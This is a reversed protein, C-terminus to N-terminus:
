RQQFTARLMARMTPRQGYLLVGAAYIRAAVWLTGLIALVLLAITLLYEWPAPNALAIRVPFLFSSVFPVWSLIRVLPSEVSALAYFSLFYAGLSVFTLPVVVQQVDEQRSVMSGAAAYLMSYLTFGLLLFVGFSVLLAPTLADLSITAGSEGLLAKSVPAQAVTGVLAALLVAGYQTLGAAGNGLVKGFLLQRPTAATILLEMVRSSKEEAVGSAVWNGYVQIAIFALIVFAYSLVYAPIFEENTLRSSGPDINTATFAVPAFIRGRDTASVGAQDLRDNTALVQTAQRVFAVRQSTASDKSVFDFTLDSASSRGIALFGDLDGAEVRARAGSPDDTVTVSYRPAGAAGGGSGTETGGSSGSGSALANLYAEITAAGQPANFESATVSMEIRVPKDGGIARVFIPLLVLALVVLALGVTLVAFTRTRVRILYERRAVYYANPFLGGFLPVRDLWSM